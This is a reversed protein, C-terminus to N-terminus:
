GAGSSGTQHGSRPRVHIPYSVGVYSVFFYYVEQQHVDKFTARTYTLMADINFTAACSYDEGNYRRHYRESEWGFPINQSFSEIASYIGSTAAHRIEEPLNSDEALTALHRRIHDKDAIPFYLFRHSDHLEKVTKDYDKPITDAGEWPYPFEDGFKVATYAGLNDQLHRM